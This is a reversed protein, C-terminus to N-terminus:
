PLLTASALVTQELNRSHTSCLSPLSLSSITTLSEIAIFMSSISPLYSNTKYHHCSLYRYTRTYQQVYPLAQQFPFKQFSQCTFESKWNQEQSGPDGWKYYSRNREIKRRQDGTERYFIFLLHRLLVKKDQSSM